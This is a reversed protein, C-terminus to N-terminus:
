ADGMMKPDDLKLTNMVTSAGRKELSKKVPNPAEFVEALEELTREKTEPFYFYMVLTELLDWGVFVLYFWYGIASLGPGIGYNSVAGAANSALNGMATGKARTATPLTEAIYMSQLPTWGFSFIIGFVYIFAISANAASKNTTDETALKATGFIVLFSLACFITSYLLLPRRGIVDTMRAGFTAACFCIVPFVGNLILQTHTDDIGANKLMVPLYYTTASNGSLQGFTAMGMVCILRRRASHSNWLERYDWWKKDSSHTGIQLSMEKIQLEVVPHSISGEGHYRALVALAEDYRDQAM